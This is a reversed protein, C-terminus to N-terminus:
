TKMVLDPGVTDWAKFVSIVWLEADVRDPSNRLKRLSMEVAKEARSNDAGM